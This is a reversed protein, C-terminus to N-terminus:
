QSPINADTGGKTAKLGAFHIVGDFSNEAFLKNIDEANGMDFNFLAPRTGTCALPLGLLIPSAHLM